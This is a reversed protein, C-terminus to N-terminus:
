FRVKLSPRITRMPNASVPWGFQTSNLSTNWDTFTVHNLVNTVDVRFDLLLGDSTRFTRGLSADLTFQTPGTLSNRGANGWEGPPPLSFAASNLRAEGTDTFLPEGTRDPRLSGTMGTGQAPTALGPTMPSGSAVIWETTLTWERLLTGLWGTSEDGLGALLGTSYFTQARMQHRRDFNSLAREAARDQWNQAVHIGGLGADDIAKSWTYQINTGWGNRQRRLLAITGAHQHSSGDSALYVYGSPCSTCAGVQERPFTQPLIRRPLNAGQVGAYTATLQFAAPLDQQLSLQWNRTRGVRFEPDVAFTNPITSAAGFGNALTLPTLPGNEMSLSTSLPSQQAMAGAISHYVGAGRYIGFGARVVLSAGAIPRWAIGIRPQVHTRDPRVLSASFSQSTLSGEPRSGLVPAVAAFGPAIALNVLRGYKETVPSEYDWRVGINITLGPTVRWDDMVYVDYASQRFYKDPNGFAISSTTPIGLLFDAFDIGSAAGTFTFTGRANEQSLVNIQERNMGAGLTLTHANRTWTSSYSFAGSQTRDYAAPGDSLGAIGDSFDLRPPGWDRPEQGNGSIGADGSVNVRHAFQPTTRTSRRTFTYQAFASFSPTFVRSWSFSSSLTSSRLRDVFSFLNQNDARSSQFGFSGSFRNGGIEGGTQFQLNDRHSVGPTQAQYNYGTDVGPDPLPYFNLLYAAPFSLRNPPIVNGPFPLGTDPDILVESRESFNGSREAPTPVRAAQLGVDRNQGRGYILTFAPGQRDSFPIGLPGSVSVLVDARNHAPQPINQGTVSFPRADLASGNAAIDIDATYLSLGRSRNNGFERGSGDNVSGNILLVESAPDDTESAFLPNQLFTPDVRGDRRSRPVADFGSIGPTLGDISLAQLEWTAAGSDPAVKVDRELQVFGPMELRVTWIGDDLGPCSYVGESDTIARFEAHGRAVRIVVGPVPVTGAYVYGRHESASYAPLETALFLGLVFVLWTQHLRVSAKRCSMASGQCDRVYHTVPIPEEAPDTTM